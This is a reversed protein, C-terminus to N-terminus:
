KKVNVKKNYALSKYYGFPKVM